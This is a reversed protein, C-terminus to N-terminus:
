GKRKLLEGGFEGSSFVLRTHVDVSSRINFPRSREARRNGGFYASVILGNQLIRTFRLIREFQFLSKMTAYGFEDDVRFVRSLISNRTEM